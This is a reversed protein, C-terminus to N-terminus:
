RLVEDAFDGLSRRAAELDGGGAGSYVIMRTVGADELARAEDRDPRGTCTIEIAAPDRGAERAAEEMQKRLAALAEPGAMGLPLFGDGLRGARRAAAASHGGVHIPVGEPRVPHPSSKVNEFAFHRGRYSAVPERWLARMAEISEDCRAGRTGWDLGLADSEERLWGIGIGLLLRGDSLRDLSATTKAFVLPDHQPLIAIATGLRLRTTAAAAWTLWVLPDPVAADPIPMRGSPSYPYTSDYDAPMVVHEAAWLSEFGLEEALSALGAAYAGTEVPAIQYAPLVGYHM